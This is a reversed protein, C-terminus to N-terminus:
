ANVQGGKNQKRKWIIMIILLIPIGFQLPIHLYIPVIQIGEEIHEAYNVAILISSIAIVMGMPISFYRYPIKFIYELGKLGGFFFLSVKIFIGLMMVFIVISDLREIFDAFAIERAATLLPFAAREAMNPGLVAMKFGKIITLMIGTTFVAAMSVKSANEFRNTLAIIMTLVIAEGFPFTLLGPFLAAWIPAFGEALIPQLHHMNVDGGSILFVGTLTLFLLIYPMFVESTRGIVEPGLYVAYLIVVMFTIALIEIPTNPFIDSIILELFDRLVRSSIYFFYIVYVFSLFITLLRGFLQEMIEYLNKGKDYALIFVYSRIIIIGFLTGILIAIWADQRAEVAVGVVVSSGIQFLIILFFLQLLGIKEPESLNM